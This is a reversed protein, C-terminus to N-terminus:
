KEHFDGSKKRKDMKKVIATIIYPFVLMIILFRLVHLMAVEQTSMGMSDALTLMEAVAGPVSAVVATLYHLHTIERIILGFLFATIMSGVGVMMVALYDKKKQKLIKKSFMLGIFLGLMSQASLRVLQPVHEVVVLETVQFAGVFIMPGILAGAPIKLLIGLMGGIFSLFLFQILDMKAEGGRSASGM